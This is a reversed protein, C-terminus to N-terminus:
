KSEEVLVYLALPAGAVIGTPIWASWFWAAAWLGGYTEGSWIGMWIYAVIALTIWATGFTILKM